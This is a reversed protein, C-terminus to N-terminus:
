FVNYRPYWPRRGLEECQRRSKANWGEIDMNSKCIHKYKCKDTALSCGNAGNFQHCIDSKEGSKGSKKQGGKNGGSMTETGIGDPSNKGTLLCSTKVKDLKIDSQKTMSSCDLISQPLSQQSFNRSTTVTNDSNMM